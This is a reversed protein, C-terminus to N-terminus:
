GAAKARWAAETPTALLGDLFAWAAELHTAAAVSLGEGLEFAEGRVGLVFAAPPAGRRIERFAQLVAQPSIAHTSFSADRAASLAAFRFPGACSADADIFLALARGELDMAHEVQLQFDEVLELQGDLLDPRQAEIRRLLLPGLSDDGRSPNGCALIVLPPHTPVLGHCEVCYPDAQM